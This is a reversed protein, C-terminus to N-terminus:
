GGGVGTGPAGDDSLRPAGLLTKEWTEASAIEDLSHRYQRALEPWERLLRQHVAVSRAM